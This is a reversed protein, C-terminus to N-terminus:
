DCGWFLYVGHCASQVQWNRAAETDGKPLKEPIGAQRRGKETWDRIRIRVETGGGWM